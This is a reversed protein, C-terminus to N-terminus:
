SARRRTAWAAAPTPTTRSTDGSLTVAATDVAQIGNQAILPTAGIGTVTSSEITCTTGVDDCTIGNKDYPQVTDTTMIVTSHAGADSAVYVGLGDQCGFM